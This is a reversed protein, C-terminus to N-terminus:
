HYCTAVPTIGVATMLRPSFERELGRKVGNKERSHGGKAQMSIPGFDTERCDSPMREPHDDSSSGGPKGSCLSLFSSMFSPNILKILV